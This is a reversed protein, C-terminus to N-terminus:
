PEKRAVRLPSYGLGDPERGVRLTRVTTRTTLDVEAGEGRSFGDATLRRRDREGM